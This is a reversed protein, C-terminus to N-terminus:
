FFTSKLLLKLHLSATQKVPYKKYFYDLYLFASVFHFRFLSFEFLLQQSFSKRSENFYMKEISM